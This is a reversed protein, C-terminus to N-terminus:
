MTFCGYDKTQLIDNIEDMDFYKPDFDGGLWEIYNGYEKHTPKTLIELMDSYGWIGGCDEPPCNMKGRICVPYKLTDDSPLIKELVIKHMWYDGFDYEYRLKDGEFKLLDSIKMKKYDISGLEDWLDDDPHKKAFTQENKVFQHLHSNSWGMATQIIKHFNELSTDSPILLRRWINPKSDALSINVQYIEKAKAM